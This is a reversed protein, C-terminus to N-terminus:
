AVYSQHLDIALQYHLVFRLVFCLIPQLNKFFKHDNASFWAISSDIGHFCGFLYLLSAFTFGMIKSVGMTIMKCPHEFEAVIGM